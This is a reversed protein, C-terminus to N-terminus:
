NKDKFPSYSVNRLYDIYGRIAFKIKRIKNKEYFIIKIIMNRYLKFEYKFYEPFLKKYLDRLYLRNRTKFYLRIPSHNHPYIKKNFFKKESIDAENHYLFANNVRIVKYNNQALRLCYETDVYDIFFEEKFPGVTQYTLLNLLNGSTQVVLEENFPEEPIKKTEFKNVHFPSIIGVNQLGSSTSIMKSIMDPAPKSDQDMTLIYSYGKEIAKKAGLNLAAAIGINCNNFIYEVKKNEIFFDRVLDCLNESNDIIFLNSIQNIYSSINNNVIENPNYLVVIGAISEKGFSNYFNIM